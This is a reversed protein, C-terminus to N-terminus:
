SEGNAKITLGSIDAGVKDLVDEIRADARAAAATAQGTTGPYLINDKTAYATEPSLTIPLM